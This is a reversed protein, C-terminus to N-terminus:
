NFFYCQEFVWRNGTYTVPYNYILSVSEQPVSPFKHENKRAENIFFEAFYQAASIAEAFHPHNKNVKWEYANKEPHFMVGYFPYTRHEITSIFLLNNSDRNNSLIHWERLLGFSTLNKETVCYHHFNVTVKQTSLINRINDPAAGFLKSKSYDKTFELPLADNYSVCDCRHEREHAAAYTLLEFGLCTGWIPFYDGKKNMELALHYITVGAAAYGDPTDFDAAGGPLLIGNISSIMQKYYSVSMNLWIPVVRAGAAEMFKVYSAAIYSRHKNSYSREMPELSDLPYRYSLEHTLIGIIPRNNKPQKFYGYKSTYGYTLSCIVFILKFWLIAMLFHTSTIAFANKLYMRRIM